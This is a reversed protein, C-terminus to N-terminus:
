SKKKMALMEERLTAGCIEISHNRIAKNVEILELNDVNKSANENFNKGILNIDIKKM